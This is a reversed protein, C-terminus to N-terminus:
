KFDTAVLIGAICAYVALHAGVRLYRWRRGRREVVFAAEWRRPASEIMDLLIAM